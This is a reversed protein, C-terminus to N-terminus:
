ESTRDQDCIIPEDAEGQRAYAEVHALEDHSAAAKIVSQIAKFVDSRSIGFKAQAAAVAAEKPDNHESMRDRVFADIDIARRFERPRAVRGRKQPPVNGELIDAAVQMEEKCATGERLRKALLAYDRHEADGIAEFANEKNFDFPFFPPRPWPQWTRATAARKRKKV